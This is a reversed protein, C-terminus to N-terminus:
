EAVETHGDVVNLTMKLSFLKPCCIFSKDYIPKYWVVIQTQSVLGTAETNLPAVTTIKQNLDLNLLNVARYYYYYYYYYNV